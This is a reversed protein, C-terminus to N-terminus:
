ILLVCMCLCMCRHSTNGVEEHAENHVVNDSDAPNEVPLSDFLGLEFKVRLVDSVREDIM